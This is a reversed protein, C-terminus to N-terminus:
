AGPIKTCVRVLAWKEGRTVRAGAHLAKYDLAGDETINYFFVADGKRGKYRYGAMPFDTEGGEFDDSLSVLFTILRQGSEAIQAARAPEAPDLFDYHPEFVEGPRYRLVSTGERGNVAVGTLAHIRHVVSTVVFDLEPSATYHNAVSRGDARDYSTSPTLRKQVGHVIWDCHDPPVFNEVIGIRPETRVMAVPPVRSTREAVDIAAHLRAWVDRPLPQGRGIAAVVPGGQGALFGLEVQAGAHGLAAARALYGLGLEWNGRRTIDRVILRALLFAGAANGAESAGLLLRRAEAARAPDPLLREALAVMAESDGAAARRQMESLSM